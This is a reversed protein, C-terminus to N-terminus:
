NSQNSSTKQINTAHRRIKNNNKDKIVKQTIKKEKFLFLKFFHQM